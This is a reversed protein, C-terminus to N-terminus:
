TSPPLRDLDNTETASSRDESDYDLLGQRVWVEWLGHPTGQAFSEINVDVGLGTAIVDLAAAFGELFVHMESSSPARKALEAATRQAALIVNRIDDKLVVTHSM